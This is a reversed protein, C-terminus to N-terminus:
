AMPPRALVQLFLVFALQAQCDREQVAPQGNLQCATEYFDILPEEGIGCVCEFAGGERIGKRKGTSARPTEEIAFFHITLKYVRGEALYQM